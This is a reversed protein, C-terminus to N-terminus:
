LIESLQALIPIDAPAWDLSASETLDTWTYDTHEVLKLLPPQECRSLFPLLRITGFSYSHIVPSLARMDNVEICLEEQIERRLATEHDEGVEVKGGPFEWKGALHGGSPRQTALIYSRPDVLVLCVVDILNDCSKQNKM